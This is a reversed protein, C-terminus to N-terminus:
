PLLAFAQRPRGRGRILTYNEQQEAEPGQIVRTFVIPADENMFVLRKGLLVSEQGLMRALRRATNEDLGRVMLSNERGGKYVGEVPEPRLGAQELMDRMLGVRAANEWDSRGTRSGTIIASRENWEVPLIEPHFETDDIGSRHPHAMHGHRCAFGCPGVHHGKSHPKTHYRLPAHELDRIRPM